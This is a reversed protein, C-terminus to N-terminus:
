CWLLCLLNATVYVDTLFCEYGRLRYFLLLDRAAKLTALPEKKREGDKDLVSQELENLLKREVRDAPSVKESQPALSVDMWTQNTVRGLSIRQTGMCYVPPPPGSASADVETAKMEVRLYPM